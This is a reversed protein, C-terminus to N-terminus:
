RRPRAAPARAARGARADVDDDGGFRATRAGTAGIDGGGPTGSSASPGPSSPGPGPPVEAAVRPRVRGGPAAASRRRFSRGCASGAAASTISALSRWMSPAPPARQAGPQDLAAARGRRGALGALASRAVSTAAQDGLLRRQEALRIALRERRPDDAVGDAEARELVQEGVRPDLLHHDVAGLADVDLAAPLISGVATEKSLSSSSRLAISRMRAGSPRRMSSSLGITSARSASPERTLTTIGGSEISPGTTEIRRKPAPTGSGLLQDLQPRQRRGPPFPQLLRDGARRLMRILPPVPEPLVVSSLASELKM